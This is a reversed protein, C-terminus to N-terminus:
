PAILYELADSLLTNCPASFGPDRGWWQCAVTFGPKSLSPSPTGGLAGIAFASMDISYSGSCDLAPPLSGGSSQAPTRRIGGPGICLTGCQFPTTNALSNVEYFLLGPKANLVQTCSVVMPTAGSASGLGSGAIAPSCGLSNQKASCYTSSLGVASGPNQFLFQVDAPTLSGQYIQIEDLDGDWYEPPSEGIDGIMWIPQAPQSVKDSPIIALQVGDLYFHIDKDMDFVFAVHSWQGLPIPQQVSYDVINALSFRLGLSTMGCSWASVVNGFIRMSGFFGFTRPRIWASVSCGYRLSAFVPDSPIEARSMTAPDFRAATGASPAPGPVGLTVGGLYTGDRGGPSSDLLQTGSTEDMGYWAVLGTVQAAAPAALLALASFAHLTKSHAM